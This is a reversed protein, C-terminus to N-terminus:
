AQMAGQRAKHAKIGEQVTSPHRDMARGIDSQTMGNESCVAMLRQRALAIGKRKDASLILDRRVNTQSEVLGLCGQFIHPKEVHRDRPKKIQSRLEKVIRELGDVQRQLASIQKQCDCM